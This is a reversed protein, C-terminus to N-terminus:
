VLTEEEINTPIKVIIKTGKGIESTINFTGNLHKAREMMGMIGFGSEQSINEKQKELDFGEGNDEIVMNFFNLNNEIKIKVNTANSYKRINNLSEQIIRFASLQIISDLDSSMKLVQLDVIINTDKTFDYCYKQATPVLGLDDLSMPSLDYIIKRIDKLSDRVVNKFDQLENFTREKDINLLKSCLEAKLVLNSMSQAPGDHIERAVRRRENEQSEIIKIGFFQYKNVSEVTKVINDLDGNLYEMAIGVQAILRESKKLTELSRKLKMELDTRQRILDKEEHRKLILQIQLNHTFEYADKIDKENYINFNKSVVLLKARSKKEKVELDDVEDIVKIVKTKISNLEMKINECELRTIEAIDFMEKKGENIADLTKNLVEKIKNADPMNIDM